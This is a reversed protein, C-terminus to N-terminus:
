RVEKKREVKGLRKAGKKEKREFQNGRCVRLDGEGSLGRSATEM